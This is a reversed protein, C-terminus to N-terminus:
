HYFTYTFNTGTRDYNCISMDKSCILSKGLVLSYQFMECLLLPYSLKVLEVFLQRRSNEDDKPELTSPVLNVDEIPLLTEEDITEDM